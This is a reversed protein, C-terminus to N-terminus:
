DLILIAEGELIFDSAVEMYKLNKDLADQWIPLMPTTFTGGVAKPYMMSETFDSHGFGLCHLLEHAVVKWNDM